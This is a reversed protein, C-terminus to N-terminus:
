KCELIWKLVFNFSNKDQLGLIAFSNMVKILFTKSCILNHLVPEGKMEIRGTNVHFKLKKDISDAFALASIAQLLHNKLPRIAGFCGIDIHEKNKDINKLKYEQPYFNPHVFFKGYKIELYEKIENLMRPTNIAIKVKPYNLYKGLWDMAMGENAIFPTESHLRIMWTVDPHLKNLIEFKEPVM